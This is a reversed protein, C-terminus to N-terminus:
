SKLDPQSVDGDTNVPLGKTAEGETPTDCIPLAREVAIGTGDCADCDQFGRETHGGVCSPCRMVKDGANVIETRLISARVGADECFRMIHGWAEADAGRRFQRRALMYCNRLTDSERNAADAPEVSPIAPIVANAQQVSKLAALVREHAVPPNCTRVSEIISQAIQELQTDTM